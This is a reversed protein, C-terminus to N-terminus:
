VTTNAGKARVEYLLPGFDENHGTLGHGVGPLVVLPVDLREQTPLVSLLTLSLYM